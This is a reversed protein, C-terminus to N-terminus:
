LSRVERLRVIAREWMAKSESHRMRVVMLESWRGIITWSPLEKWIFRGSCGWRVKVLKSNTFKSEYVRSASSDNARSPNGEVQLVPSGRNLM